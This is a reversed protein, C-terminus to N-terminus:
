YFILNNRGAVKLVFEIVRERLRLINLKNEETLGSYEHNPDSMNAKEFGLGADM